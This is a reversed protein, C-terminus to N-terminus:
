ITLLAVLLKRNLNGVVTQRDTTEQFVQFALSFCNGSVTRRGLAVCQEIVASDVGIQHGVRHIFAWQLQSKVCGTHMQRYQRSFCQQLTLGVVGQYQGPVKGILDHSLLAFVVVPSATEDDRDRLGRYDSRGKSFRALCQTFSVIDYGTLM